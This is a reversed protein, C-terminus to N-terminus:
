WVLFAEQWVGCIMYNNIRRYEMAMWGLSRLITWVFIIRGEVAAGGSLALDIWKQNYLKRIAQFAHLSHFTRQRNMPRAVDVSARVYPYKRSKILTAKIMGNCSTGGCENSYKEVEWDEPTEELFVLCVIQACNDLTYSKTQKLERRNHRHTQTESVRWMWQLNAIFTHTHARM